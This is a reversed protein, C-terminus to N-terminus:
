IYRISSHNSPFGGGYRAINDKEHPFQWQKYIGPSEGQPETFLIGANTRSIVQHREPSVGNDLCIVAQTVSTFVRAALGWHTLLNECGGAMDNYYQNGKEWQSCPIKSNATKEDRVTGHTTIVVVQPAMPPPPTTPKIIQKGHEILMIDACNWKVGGQTASNLDVGRVADM